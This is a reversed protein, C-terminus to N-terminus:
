KKFDLSPKGQDPTFIAKGSSIELYDGDKVDITWSTVHRTKDYSSNGEDYIWSASKLKVKTGGDVVENGLTVSVYAGKEAVIAWKGEPIDKGVEWVGQPVTVEQWDDSSWMALNIKNRLEVLENYSMKSLDIDAASKPAPSTHALTPTPTPKPTETPKPMSTSSSNSMGWDAGCNEVGYNAQENTFGEYELQSILKSKSFTMTNLYEKAARAAQENWNAKCNDAGYVAEEHSYKEYELQKILGKYSFASIDLYDKASKLAQEKWNAGCNDAAYVAEEHSYKEYELQKILGDYSFASVSLYNKASKLANQQATTPALTGASKPTTATTSNKNNSDELKYSELDDTITKVFQGGIVIHGVPSFDWRIGNYEVLHNEIIAKKNLSEDSILKTAIEGAKNADLSDDMARMLSTLILTFNDTNDSLFWLYASKLESKLDNSTSTAVHISYKTNKDNEFVYENLKYKFDSKTPVTTEKSSLLGGNVITSTTSCFRDIFEEGSINKDNKKSADAYFRHKSNIASMYKLHSKNIQVCNGNLVYSGNDKNNAFGFSCTFVMLTLVVILSIIKKMETEEEFYFTRLRLWASLIFVRREMQQSVFEKVGMLSRCLPSRM